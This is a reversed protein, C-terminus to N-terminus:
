AKVDKIMEEYTRWLNDEKSEAMPNDGRYPKDSYSRKPRNLDTGAPFSADAGATEEHPSNTYEIDREKPADKMQEDVQECGCPAGGCTDCAEETQQAQIAVMPMGSLKRILNVADEEGSASVNINIDEKVTYKKGGVEFEKSGAAKAAALAGSFENGEEVEAEMMGEDCKCPACDCTPCKDEGVIVATPQASMNYDCEDVGAAKYFKEHSFRPNQQKFIDAHHTALELRKVKDEIDRILEAVKRFDKRSAAEDLETHTLPSSSDSPAMPALNENCKCPACNCAECTKVPLGALKAIEDLEQQINVVPAEMMSQEMMEQEALEESYHDWAEKTTYIPHNRIADKGETVKAPLGKHKTAAFDHAAKDSMGKATKAILKSPAKMKEKQVAHVMGMFKQQQKSVAKENLDIDEKKYKDKIRGLEEESAGDRGAKSLATMGEKGYKKKGTYYQLGSEELDDKDEDDKQASGGYARGKVFRSPSKDYDGKEAREDEQKDKLAQLRKRKAVADKDIDAPEHKKADKAAKKMPEKTDGDKDLDLFDPKFNEEVKDCHCETSDCADCYEEKSEYRPLSIKSDLEKQYARLRKVFNKNSIVEKIDDATFGHGMREAIEEFDDYILRTDHNKEIQAIVSAMLREAGREFNEGLKKGKAAKKMPEDTDGDKDLDLFDPKAAEKLKKYEVSRVAEIISTPKTMTKNGLSELQTGALKGRPPSVLLAKPKGWIKTAEPNEQGSSYWRGQPNAKLGLNYAKGVETPGVKDYFYRYEKGGPAATTTQGVQYPPPAPLEHEIQDVYTRLQNSDSLVNVVISKKLAPDTIKAFAAKLKDYTARNIRVKSGKPYLLEVVALNPDAKMANFEQNNWRAYETPQSTATPRPVSNTSTQNALPSTKEAPNILNKAYDFIGAEKVMSEEAVKLQSEDDFANPTFQDQNAAALSAYRNPKQATDTDGTANSAGQAGTTNVPQGSTKDAGPFNYVSTDQPAEPATTPQEPATAGKAVAAKAADSDKEIQKAARAAAQDQATIQGSLLKDNVARFRQDTATMVKQMADQNAQTKALMGQLQEIKQRDVVDAKEAQELEKELKSTYSVIAEFDNLEPKIFKAKTALRAVDPDASRTLDSAPVVAEPEKRKAKAEKFGMFREELQTVASLIDGRPDVSEYVPEATSVPNAKPRLGDLKGLIDYINNSM